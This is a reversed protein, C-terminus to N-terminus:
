LVSLARRYYMQRDALGNTGGNIRRTITLFDKRDALANLGHGKWFWTAVRFGVQKTAVMKPHSELPLHLDHGARRYNARGTLQIPGRGKFRRGDGPHTNGLDKRGEYAAGSAIEEFYKLQGSEHALQAIFAAKRLRTNIKGDAMAKNLYPLYARAKSMPLGPMIRHLQSLSVGAKEQKAKEARDIARMTAGGVSGSIKLHKKKQFARVAKATAETFVGDVKGTNFGLFKLKQETRKVTADREGLRQAPSTGSTTAFLKSKLTSWTKADVVGTQALGSGKQFAKIAAGTRAGFTSNATGLDYGAAELHKEVNLVARGKAGPGIGTGKAAAKATLADLRNHQKVGGIIRQSYPTHNYGRSAKSLESFLQKGITHGKDSVQRDSKRYREVAAATAKDMLGDVLGPKFGLKELMREARLIDTGSQGVKASTVFNDKVFLETSKLATITKANVAGTVTLGKGKQLASVATATAADFTGSVAGKYVGACVLQRQLASVAKGTDGLDLPNGAKLEAAIAAVDKKVAKAESPLVRHTVVRM